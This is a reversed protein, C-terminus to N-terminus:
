DQRVPAGLVSVAGASSEMVGGLIHFCTTKGAGDPGILGFIEGPQVEFDIGQVAAFDGYRKSLNQVSIVPSNLNAIAAQGSVSSSTGIM